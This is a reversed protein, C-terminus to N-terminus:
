NEKKRLFKRLIHSLFENKPPLIRLNLILLESYLNDIDQPKIEGSPKYLRTSELPLTFCFPISVNKTLRSDIIIFASGERKWLELRIPSSFSAFVELDSVYHIHCYSSRYGDIKSYVIYCYRTKDSRSTIVLHKCPFGQHDHFIQRDSTTLTS